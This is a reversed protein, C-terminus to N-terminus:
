PTEEVIVAPAKRDEILFTEWAFSLAHDTDGDKKHYWNDVAELLREMAKQWLAQQERDARLKAEMAPTFGCAADIMSTVPSKSM